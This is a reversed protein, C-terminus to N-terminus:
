SFLEFFNKESAGLLVTKGPDATARSVSADIIKYVM